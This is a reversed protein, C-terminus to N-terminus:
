PFKKNPAKCVFDIIEKWKHNTSLTTSANSHLAVQNPEDLALSMNASRPMGFHAVRVIHTQGEILETYPEAFDTKKKEIVQGWDKLM